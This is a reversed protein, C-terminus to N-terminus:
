HNPKVFHDMAYQYIEYDPRCIARIREGIEETVISGRYSESTPNPNRKELKLRVGFRDEFQRLFIEKYELCGIIDFKHLNRKARDIAQQSTYDGAQDAGGLFKVHEYGQSQGFHSQLYTTIDAEIRRHVSKYMNFFYTSIWRRVPDRLITIFAYEDGFERYAIESFTFHGAIYKTDKQNMFYLLLDEQFKLIPYDDMIDFPYDTQNIIKIVNSSAVPDLSVLRHRDKRSYLWRIASNVSTGGCKPIHLFFINEDLCGHFLHDARRNLSKLVPMREGDKKYHIPLRM